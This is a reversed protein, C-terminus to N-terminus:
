TPSCPNLCPYGRKPAAMAWRARRPFLAASHASPAARGSPAPLPPCQCRYLLLRLRPPSRTTTSPTSPSRAASPSSASRAARASTACRGPATTTAGITTSAVSTSRCSCTTACRPSAAPLARAQRRPRLGRDLRLPGGGPRGPQHRQEQGRPRGGDPRLRRQRRPLRRARRWSACACTPTSCPALAVASRTACSAWAREGLPPRAGAHRGAM